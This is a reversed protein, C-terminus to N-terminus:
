IEIPEGKPKPRKQKQITVELVGNKYSTKAAKPVVKAPLEVEKHYKRQPTDVSITLSRETGHLKIDKKEVGPLEVIVKVEGNITMVDALPERKEKIDIHPKGLRTEPKVNGFEKVKPRGDPGITVSYGYVFPGWESVKTGDPLIRERVLERPAKRSFEAFQKTMMQEM